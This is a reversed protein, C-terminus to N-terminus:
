GHIRGGDPKPRPMYTSRARVQHPDLLRVLKLRNALAEFTERGPDNPGAHYRLTEAAVCLVESDTMEGRRLRDIPLNGDRYQMQDWLPEVPTM